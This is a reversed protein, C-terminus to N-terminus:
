ITVKWFRNRAQLQGHDRRKGGHSLKPFRQICKRQEQCAIGPREPSLLIFIKKFSEPFASFSENKLAM